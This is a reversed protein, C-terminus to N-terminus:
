GCRWKCYVSCCVHQQGNHQDRGELVVYRAAVWQAPEQGVLVACRVVSSRGNQQDRGVCTAASALQTGLALQSATTAGVATLEYAATPELATTL